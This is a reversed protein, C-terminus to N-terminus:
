WDPDCNGWKGEVANGNQDVETSCWAATPSGDTACEDYRRGQYKFPFVCDKGAGVGASGWTSCEIATPCDGLDYKCAKTDCEDDCVGDGLWRFACEAHGCTLLSELDEGFRACDGGDTQCSAVVCEPDCEGDGIWVIPCGEACFTNETNGADCDDGDFICEEINCEEDCLGDNIWLLSCGM